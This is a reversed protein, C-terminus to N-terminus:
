GESKVRFAGRMQDEKTSIMFFSNVEAITSRALLAMGRYFETKAYQNVDSSWRPIWLSMHQALFGRQAALLKEVQEGDRAGAATIILNSLHAIFAFQLGVHDAPENYQSALALDFRLYWNKVSATQIQFVARDKNTYVSEWPAALLRGPGVFLRTYDDELAEIEIPALDGSDKASWGRLVDLAAATEPLDAAFPIADFIRNRRLSSLWAPDPSGYLAKALLGCVLMQGEFQALWEM